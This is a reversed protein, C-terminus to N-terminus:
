RLDCGRVLARLNSGATGATCALSVCAIEGRILFVRGFERQAADIFDPVEVEANETAFLLQNKIHKHLLGPM